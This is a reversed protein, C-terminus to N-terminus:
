KRRVDPLAAVEGLIRVLEVQRQVGVRAFIAQVQSRVTALSVAYAAAIETPSQGEFLAAAVRQEAATLAFLTGLRTGIGRKM